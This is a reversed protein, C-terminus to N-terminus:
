GSKFNVAAAQQGAIRGFVLGETLACSGLRSAGHIGGCVEGAAFLRPIPQNRLNIVRAESDIGVGGATYHVKPWLRIAYFPPTNLPQGGHGLEKGFEDRVGSQVRENYHRVTQALRGGPMKYAAELDTLNHFEKVKGSALCKLLSEYDKKAGAADVIGVCVHGTKFLADCRQRRDGWENVIRCGSVPDVVIGSPYVSYSAFRGGRGYGSEDACGWPGSQIWSLHIPVAGIDLAAILGEATAGRHNTSAVSENLFPNQLERFRIDNAFGGTALVVARHARIRFIKSRDDGHANQESRIEIGGIGGDKEPVLKTMRCRTRIQVGSARLWAIQAKTIDVGLHSRTTLGRAVSHGGFRDVRDQYQVGLMNQSWEVAELAMNAMTELLRPNNLGLGARLMDEYLLEPSDEIGLRKQLPHGPAALGGDSIRTNGGTIKMKEFVAVDVGAMRSEIAASLGAIGSGVVVVDYHEDWAKM